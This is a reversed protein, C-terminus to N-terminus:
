SNASYRRLQEYLLIGRVTELDDRTFFGHRGILGCHKIQKIDDVTVQRYAGRVITNFKTAFRDPEAVIAWADAWEVPESSYEWIQNCTSKM